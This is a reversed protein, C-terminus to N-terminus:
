DEMIYSYISLGSDLRSDPYHDKTTPGCIVCNQGISVNEPVTSSEGIVTIGTNYISPKEFNPINEGYGISVNRNIVCNEAIITRLLNANEGIVTNDMIISDKVFAGKKITVNEGLVCGHVYGHIECSDSVLSSKIEADGSVYHPEQKEANTYISWAKDYLNFEPVTRILEMNAQWYSEVTGVDRWYDDYVFTVLRKNQELLNPIIHKGFDSDDHLKNDEILAKKLVPWSFIYIGMSALTSKPAKPKEEFEYIVGDEDANMIGFRSAEELPVDLVAITVDAKQDEHRQLMQSYDCKYIHDGSLILVYDPDYNEIFDINHYIANATGTYWNGESGEKAYPSLLVAGGASNSDLDWPTGIGIHRNLALPQYQTLIGVTDIGSNVANSMPFDIIKYMGGFAVSPKANYNTLVGLRSGQGGALLMAIMKKKKLCIM